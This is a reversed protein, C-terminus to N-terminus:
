SGKLGAALNLITAKGYDPLMDFAPDNLLDFLASTLQALPEAGALFTQSITETENM